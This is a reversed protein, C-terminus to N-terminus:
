FAAGPNSGDEPECHQRWLGPRAQGPRAQSTSQTATDPVDEVHPRFEIFSRYVVIDVDTATHREDQLFWVGGSGASAQVSWASDSSSAADGFSLTEYNSLRVQLKSRLKKVQAMVVEELDESVLVHYKHLQERFSPNSSLHRLLARYARPALLVKAESPLTWSLGAQRLQRQVAQLEDSSELVDKLEPPSRSFQLVVVRYLAGHGHLSTEHDHWGVSDWNNEMLSLQQQSAIAAAEDAPITAAPESHDVRQVVAPEPAICIEGNGNSTSSWLAGLGPPVDNSQFYPSRGFCVLDGTAKVACTYNGGAAVAM